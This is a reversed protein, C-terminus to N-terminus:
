SFVMYGHVGTHKVQLRCACGPLPWPIGLGQGWCRGLEASGRRTGSPANRACTSGGRAMRRMRSSHGFRVPTTTWGVARAMLLRRPHASTGPCERVRTGPSKRVKIRHPMLAFFLKFCRMRLTSGILQLADFQPHVRDQAIIKFAEVLFPSILSRSWLGSLFANRLLIRRQQVSDLPFVKFVLTEGEVVLSQFTSTSSWLGSCRPLPYSRRCKRWSRIACLLACILVDESLIKPVEIVQEPDPMLTDFFQLVDPLQNWRRRCLYMLFRCWPLSVCLTRSTSWSTGSSGNKRGLSLSLRPGCGAPEEDFLKFLVPQPLPHKRIKATFSLEFDGEGARAKKQGRLASHRAFTALVAAISQQEHRWAARLRRGRRRQAASRSPQWSPDM